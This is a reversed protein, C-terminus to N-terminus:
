ANRWDEGHRVRMQSATTMGRVCVLSAGTLGAQFAHIIWGLAVGQSCRRWM